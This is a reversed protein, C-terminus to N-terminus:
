PTTKQGGNTPPNKQGAPMGFAAILALVGIWWGTKGAPIIGQQMAVGLAALLTRVTTVFYTPDTWLQKLLTWM